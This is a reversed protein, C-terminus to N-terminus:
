VEEWRELEDYSAEWDLSQTMSLLLTGALYALDLIFDPNDCNSRKKQEQRLM